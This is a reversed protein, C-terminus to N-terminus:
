TIPCRKVEEERGKNMFELLATIFPIHEKQATEYDPLMCSGTRIIEEFLGSTMTSQYYAKLPITELAWKEKKRLMYAVGGSENVLCIREKSSITYIVPEIEGVESHLSFFECSDTKGEMTGTFEIYGKRKSDIIENDLKETYVTLGEASGTIFNILDIYHVSNCGLGWAGGTLEFRIEQNQFEEKLWSFFPIMRRSCNIWTKIHKEKLLKEIDLYDELCPFLVKELILYNVKSHALLEEILARRVGSTTVVAAIDIETPVDEIKNCLFLKVQESPNNGEFLERSKELADKSVDVAYVASEINLKALSQIYRMGLGGCGIIVFQYM